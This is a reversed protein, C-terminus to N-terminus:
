RLHEYVWCDPSVLPEADRESDADELADLDQDLPACPLAAIREVDHPDL